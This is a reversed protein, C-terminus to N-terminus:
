DREEFCVITGSPRVAYLLGDSRNTPFRSLSACPYRGLIEGSSEKVALIERKPGLIYLGKRGNMLIQSCGDLTWRLSGSLAGPNQEPLLVLSLLVGKETIVYANEGYLIPRGRLPAGCDHKWLLMGANAELAYLTHGTSFLILRVTVKSLAGGADRRLARLTHVLPEGINRPESDFRWTLTGDSGRFCNLTGDPAVFYISPDAYTPGGLVPTGAAAGSGQYAVVDAGKKEVDLVHVRAAAADPVFLHTRIAAPPGSPVFSLRQTWKLAGSARDLCYLVQRSVVYLNDGFKCVRLRERVGNRRKQLAQTEPGVGKAGLTEDIKRGLAALEVELSEEEALVEDCIVPPADLPTGADVRFTWAAQGTKRDLAALAGDSGEVYLRDLLTLRSIGPDPLPCEWVKRTFAPDGDSRGRGEAPTGGDPSSGPAKPLVLWLIAAFGGIAMALAVAGWRTRRLVPRSGRIRHLEPNMRRALEGLVRDRLQPSPSPPPIRHLLADIEDPTM